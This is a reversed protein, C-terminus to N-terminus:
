YATKCFCFRKPRSNLMTISNVHDKLEELEQKSIQYGHKTGIKQNEGITEVTGILTSYSDDFCFYWYNYAIMLSPYLSQFDLVVLPSTYLRSIPEMNLALCEPAKM